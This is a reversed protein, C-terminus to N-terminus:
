YPFLIGVLILLMGLVTGSCPLWTRNWNAKCYNVRYVGSLFAWKGYGPDNRLADFGIWIYGCLFMSAGITLILIKITWGDM